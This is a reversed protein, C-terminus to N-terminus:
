VVCSQRDGPRVTNLEMARHRKVCGDTQGRRVFHLGTLQDDRPQRTNDSQVRVDVASEDVEPVVDLVV